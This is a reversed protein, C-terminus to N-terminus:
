TKQQELVSNQVKEKRKIKEFCKIESFFLSTIFLFSAPYRM